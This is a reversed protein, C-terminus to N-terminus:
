MSGSARMKPTTLGYSATAIARYPSGDSLILIKYEHWAAPNDPEHKQHQWIEGPCPRIGHRQIDHAINIRNMDFATM